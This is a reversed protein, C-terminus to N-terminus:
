KIKMQEKTLFDAILKVQKDINKIKVISYILTRKKGDSLKDFITKADSDQVDVGLQDPDEDIIYNIQDGLGKKIQELYRGAIIIFFNGDGLHNLGCRYSVIDNLTCILRTTKKRDFQNVIESDIKLYFYGGKRQELRKIRQVGKYSKM